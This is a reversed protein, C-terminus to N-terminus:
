GPGGIKLLRTKKQSIRNKKLNWKKEFEFRANTVALVLRNPVKHRNKLYIPKQTDPM